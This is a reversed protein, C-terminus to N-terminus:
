KTLDPHAKEWVSKLCESKDSPLMRSCYIYQSNTLHPGMEEIAQKSARSLSLRVTEESQERLHAYPETNPHITTTSRVENFM